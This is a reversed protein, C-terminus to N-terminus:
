ESAEFHTSEAGSPEVPDTLRSQQPPDRPDTLRSLKYLQNNVHLLIIVPDLTMCLTMNHIM